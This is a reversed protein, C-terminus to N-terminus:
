EQLRSIDVNEAEPLLEFLSPKDNILKYYCTYNSPTIEWIDELEEDINLKGYHILEQSEDSTIYFYPSM